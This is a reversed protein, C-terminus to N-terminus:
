RKMLKVPQHNPFFGESFHHFEDIPIILCLGLDYPFIFCPLWVVLWYEMVVFTYAPNGEQCDEDQSDNDDRNIEISLLFHCGFWWGSKSGPERAAVSFALGTSRVQFKALFAHFCHFPRYM